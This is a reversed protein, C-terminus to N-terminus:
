PPVPAPSDQFTKACISDTRVSRSCLGTCAKVHTRRPGSAALCPIHGVPLIVVRLAQAQSSRSAPPAAKRGVQACVVESPLPCADSVPATRDRSGECPVSATGSPITGAPGPPPLSPHLRCLWRGGTCGQSSQATGRGM